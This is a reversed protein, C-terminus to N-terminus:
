INIYSESLPRLYNDAIRLERSYFLAPIPGYKIYGGRVHVGIPALGRPALSVTAICPWLVLLKFFSLRRSSLAWDYLCVTHPLLALKRPSVVLMTKYKKRGPCHACVCFGFWISIQKYGIIYAAQVSVQRCVEFVYHPLLIDPSPTSM